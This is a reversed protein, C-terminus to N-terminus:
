HFMYKWEHFHWMYADIFQTLMSEPLPKEGARRWAMVQVLAAKNDVPGKLPFSWHFKWEHLHRM